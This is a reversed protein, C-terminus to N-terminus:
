VVCLDVTYSLCPTESPTSQVLIGNAPNVLSAIATDEEVAAAKANTEPHTRKCYGGNVPMRIADVVVISTRADREGLSCVM